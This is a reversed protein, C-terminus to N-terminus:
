RRRRDAVRRRLSAILRSGTAGQVAAAPPLEGVDPTLVVQAGTREGQLVIAAFGQPALRCDARVTGSQDAEAGPLPVAAVPADPPMAAWVGVLEGPAFQRRVLQIGGPAVPRQYPPQVLLPPVALLTEAHHQEEFLDAWHLTARISAADARRVVVTLRVTPTRAAAAGDPVPYPIEVRVAAGNATIKAARWDCEGDLYEVGDPLLVDLEVAAPYATGQVRPTLYLHLPTGGPLSQAAVAVTELTLQPRTYPAWFPQQFHERRILLACGRHQPRTAVIMNEGHVRYRYLPEPLYHAGWGAELIAIWLQYDWLIPIDKYGGVAEVAARRVMSMTDIFNAHVLMAPDPPYSRYVTGPVVGLENWVAAGAEGTWYRDSYAFGLRADGELAAALAGIFQPLLVNDADVFAILEGTTAAIGHNYSHCPNRYEVREYRVGSAAYAAAIAPTTDSSADDIILVEDPRRSQALISELCERLYRGYNHCTIVVSVTL